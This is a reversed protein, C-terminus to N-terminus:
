YSQLIYIMNVNYIIVHVQTSKSPKGCTDRKIKAGNLIDPLFEHKYAPMAVGSIGHNRRGSNFPILM